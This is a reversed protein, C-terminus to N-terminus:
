WRSKGEYVIRPSGYSGDGKVRTETTFPQDKPPVTPSGGVDSFAQSSSGSWAVSTEKQPSSPSAMSTLQQTGIRSGAATSAALTRQRKREVCFGRYAAMSCVIFAVGLEVAGWLILRDLATKRGWDLAAGRGFAIIIVIVGAMLTSLLVFKRRLDMKLQLITFVPVFLLLIDSSIDAVFSFTIAVKGLHLRQPSFCVYGGEGKCYLVDLVIGTVYGFFIFTFTFWWYAIFYRENVGRRLKHFFVALSIKIGVIAHTWLLDAAFHYKNRRGIDAYYTEWYPIEGRVANQFKIALPAEVTEAGCWAAFCLWSVFVIYDDLQFRKQYHWRCALRVSVAITAVVFFTWILAKFISTLSVRNTLGHPPNCDLWPSHDSHGTTFGEFEGILIITNATGSGNPIRQVSIPDLVFSLFVKSSGNSEDLFAM